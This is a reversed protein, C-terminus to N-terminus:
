KFHNEIKERLSRLTAADLNRADIEIHAQEYYPKRDLFLSELKSKDAALPRDGDRQDLRDKLMKFPVNLYVVCTKSKLESLLDGNTVVGGGTSIVLNSDRSLIDNLVYKEAVRFPGEGFREFINPISEDYTKEIESDVDVFDYHLAAALKRGLKSKGSAM